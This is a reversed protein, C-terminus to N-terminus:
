STDRLVDSRVIGLGAVVVCVVGGIGLAIAAGLREAVFGAQLAGFPSLGLFALAFVSVVRGRLEDPAITQLLTNTLATTTLMAFGNLALLALGLPLSRSFAFLVVLVGFAVSARGLVRGRRYRHGFAALSLAGVLAGLGVSSMMWGYEVAGLGLVDRAMVPMLVMVPLGFISMAAINLILMRIRSESAVYRLANRIDRRSSASPGPRRQAAPLRMALIAGIVALYSLGNLLFCMGVGVASILLGAVAPGLVRSASFASSNLGIASTLDDKGVLEVVFSQRAPIDFALATGLLPAIILVHWLTVVGAFVFGALILALVMSSAQTMMVVWHKPVRDALVGAHLSFLLVPLTGLAEALGVYFASDTLELVLWSQAVRQMWVGVLSVVMGSFFLRYNRHRLAGFPVSRRDPPVASPSDAPRRDAPEASPTDIRRDASGGPHPTNPPSGGM